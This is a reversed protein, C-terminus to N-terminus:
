STTTSTCHHSTTTIEPYEDVDFCITAEVNNRWNFGIPLATGTLDFSIAESWCHSESGYAEYVAANASRTWGGYKIQDNVFIGPNSSLAGAATIDKFKFSVKWKGQYPADLPLQILGTSSTKDFSSVTMPTCLENSTLSLKCSLDYGKTWAALHEFPVYYVQMNNIDIHSNISIGDITVKFIATMKKSLDRDLLKWPKPEFTVLKRDPSIFRATVEPSTFSVHEPLPSPFTVAAIWGEKGLRQIKMAVRLLISQRDAKPQSKDGYTQPVSFAKQKAM